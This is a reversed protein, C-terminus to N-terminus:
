QNALFTKLSEREEEAIEKDLSYWESRFLPFWEPEKIPEYHRLYLQSGGGNKLNNIVEQNEGEITGDPNKFAVLKRRAKLPMREITKGTYVKVQGGFCNFARIIQWFITNNIMRMQNLYELVDKKFSLLEKDSCKDNHRTGFTNM